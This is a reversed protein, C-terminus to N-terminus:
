ARVNALSRGPSWKRREARRITATDRVRSLRDEGPQGVPSLIAKNRKLTNSRNANTGKEAIAAEGAKIGMGADVLACSPSNLIM